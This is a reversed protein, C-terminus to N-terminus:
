KSKLKDINCMLLRQIEKEYNYNDNQKDDYFPAVGRQSLGYKQYYLKM